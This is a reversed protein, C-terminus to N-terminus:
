KKPAAAKAAASAADLRRIVEATMDLGTDAWVLGSDSQSFLLHLGKERAVAEIVPGVKRQFDLQLENQLEQL